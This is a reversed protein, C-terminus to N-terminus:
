ITYYLLITSHAIKIIDNKQLRGDGFVHVEAARPPSRACGDSGGERRAQLENKYLTLSVEDARAWKLAEFRSLVLKSDSKLIGNIGSRMRM